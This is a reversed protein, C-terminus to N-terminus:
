SEGRSLATINTIGAFGSGTFGGDSILDVLNAILDNVITSTIVSAQPIALTLNV